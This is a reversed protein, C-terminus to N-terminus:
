SLWQSVPLLEGSLVSTRGSGTEWTSSDNQLYVTSDASTPSAGDAEGAPSPTNLKHLGTGKADFTHYAASGWRDPTHDAACVASCQSDSVLQCSSQKKLARSPVLLNCCVLSAQLHKSARLMQSRVAILGSLCSLHMM